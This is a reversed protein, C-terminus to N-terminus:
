FTGTFEELRQFASNWVEAHPYLTEFTFSDRVIQRAQELSEIHKLGIGQVLMNGIM